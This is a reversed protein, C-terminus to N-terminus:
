LFAQYLLRTRGLSLIIPQLTEEIDNLLAALGKRKAPMIIEPEGQDGSLELSIKAARNLDGIEDALGLQVAKEGLIIRGDAFKRVVDVELKRGEAVTTLFQEYAQDVVGQFMARDEATMPRFPSGVDKLAGSKIVTMGVGVKDLVQTVNPMMLIVGISGTITGRHTVVKECGAAAYLGGSAAFNGLSCVVPKKKRAAKILEYIEESAGVAGGPSDIRVVISKISDNNQLRELSERFRDATLIEGTLEVVGVGHETEAQVFEEEDIIGTMMAVVGFFAFVMVFGFLGLTVMGLFVFIKKLFAMM